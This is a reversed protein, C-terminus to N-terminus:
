HQAGQGVVHAELARVLDEATVDSEFHTIYRGDPGMLYTFSTHDMLYNDRDSGPVKAFFVGYAYAVDRLAGPAGTLAVLRPSFNAAYDKLIDETDRAPDITIFIPVVRGAREPDRKEFAGLADAIKMLGTPCVDPCFTYGFYVVMYSGRFDTDSRSRGYQDVLTFPAGVEVEAAPLIATGLMTSLLAAAALIPGRPSSNPRNRKLEMGGLAGVCERGEHATARATQEADIKGSEPQLRRKPRHVLAM